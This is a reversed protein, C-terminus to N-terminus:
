VKYMTLLVEKSKTEEVLYITQLLGVGPTIINAPGIDFNSNVSDYKFYQSDGESINVQNQLQDVANFIFASKRQDSTLSGLCDSM